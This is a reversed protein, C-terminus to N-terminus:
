HISANIYELIEQQRRTLGKMTDNAGYGAKLRDLTCQPACESFPSEHVGTEYQVRM